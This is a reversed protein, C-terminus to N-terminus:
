WRRPDSAKLDAVLTVINQLFTSGAHEPYLLLSLLCCAGSASIVRQNQLHLYYM